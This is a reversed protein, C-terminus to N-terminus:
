VAARAEKQAFAAGRELAKFNAPLLGKHREPLHDELAQKITELPLIPLQNILAGLMVMNILRKNGLEEAIQNAPILVVNIDDRELDRDILSQNTILVGGPKVQCEFKDL